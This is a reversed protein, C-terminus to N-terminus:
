KLDFDHTQRSPESELSITLESERNYKDSLLQRVPPAGPGTPANKYEEPDYGTIEVRLTGVPVGNTSETTYHGGEVKEVTIPGQSGDAPIFRIRGLELPQGQHSIEGSVVVKNWREKRSCGLSCMFLALTLFVAKTRISQDM